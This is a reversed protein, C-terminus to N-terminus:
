LYRSLEDDTPSLLKRPKIHLPSQSELVRNVSPVNTWEYVSVNGQDEAAQLLVDDARKCLVLGRLHRDFFRPNRRISAMYGLLQGLAETSAHRFKVEIALLGTYQDEALIDLRKSGCAFQHGEGAASNYITLGREILRLNNALFRHLHTEGTFPPGPADMSPRWVRASM